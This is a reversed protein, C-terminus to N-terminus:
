SEEGPASGDPGTGIHDEHEHSETRYPGTPTAATDSWAQYDTWPLCVGNPRTRLATAVALALTAHVQAKATIPEWDIAEAAQILLNEAARYHEPGTV